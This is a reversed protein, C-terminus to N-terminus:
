AAKVTTDISTFLTIIDKGLTTVIATVAIAILGVIIAYEIMTAGKIKNKSYKTM